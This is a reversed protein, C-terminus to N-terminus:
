KAREMQRLRREAARSGAREHAVWQKGVPLRTKRVMFRQPDMEEIFRVRENKKV